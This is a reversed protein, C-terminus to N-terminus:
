RTVVKPGGEEVSGWSIAPMPGRVPSHRSPEFMVDVGLTKTTKPEGHAM